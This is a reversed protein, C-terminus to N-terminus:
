PHSPTLAWGAPPPVASDEPFQTDLDDLAFEITGKLEGGEWVAILPVGPQLLLKNDEMEALTREHRLRIRGLADRDTPDVWIRALAPVQRFYRLRGADVGEVVARRCNGCLYVTPSGTLLEIPDTDLCGGHASATLVAMTAADVLQFAEAPNPGKDLVQGCACVLAGM